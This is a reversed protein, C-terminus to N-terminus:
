AVMVGGVALVVGALGGALLNFCEKGVNRAIADNVYGKEVGFSWATWAYGAKESDTM